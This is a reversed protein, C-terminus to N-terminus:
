CFAAAPAAFIASTTTAPASTASAAVAMATAAASATTTAAASVATIAAIAIAITSPLVLPLPSWLSPNPTHLVLKPNWTYLKTVIQHLTSCHKYCIHIQLTGLKQRRSLPEDTSCISKDAQASSFHHNQIHIQTDAVSFRLKVSCIHLYFFNHRHAFSFGKCVTRHMDTYMATNELLGRRYAVKPMGLYM